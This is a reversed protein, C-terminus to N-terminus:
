KKQNSEFRQQFEILEAIDKQNPRMYQTNSGQFQANDFNYVVRVKAEGNKEIWASTNGDTGPPITPSKAEQVLHSVMERLDSVRDNGVCWVVYGPRLEGIAFDEFRTGPDIIMVGTKSSLLDYAEDIEPNFDALTMELLQYKTVIPSDIPKLAIKMETDSADITIDEISKRNGAVDVARLNSETRASGAQKERDAPQQARASLGIALPILASVLGAILYRGTWPCYCHGPLM